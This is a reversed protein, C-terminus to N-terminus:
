CYQSLRHGTQRTAYSTKRILYIDHTWMIINGGERLYVGDSCHHNDPPYCPFSNPRNQAINHADIRCMATCACKFLSLLQQNTLNLKKRHNYQTNCNIQTLNLKKPGGQTASASIINTWPWTVMIKMTDTPKDTQKNTCLKEWGDKIRNRDFKSM